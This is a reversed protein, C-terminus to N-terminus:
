GGAAKTGTQLANKAGELLAQRMGTLAKVQTQMSEVIGTALAVDLVTTYGPNHIIRFLEANTNDNENGVGSLEKFVQKLQADLHKIKGANASAATASM